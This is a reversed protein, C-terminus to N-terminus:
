YPVYDHPFWEATSSIHRDLSKEVTPLLQHLIAEDSVPRPDTM